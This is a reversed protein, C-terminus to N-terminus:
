SWRGAITFPGGTVGEPLVFLHRMNASDIVEADSPYVEIAVREAGVIENRIRQLDSWAEVEHGDHRRIALHLVEGGEWADSRRFVQVSYINNRWGTLFDGQRRRYEAVVAPAIEVREFPQWERQGRLVSLVARRHARNAM